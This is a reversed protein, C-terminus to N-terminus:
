QRGAVIFRRPFFMLSGNHWNILAQFKHKIKPAHCRMTQTYPSDRFHAPKWLFIPPLM